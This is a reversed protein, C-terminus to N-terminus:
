KIYKKEFAILKQKSAFPGHFKYKQLTILKPCFGKAWGKNLKIIYYGACFCSKSKKTKTYIPVKRKVDFVGNYYKQDTPYDHLMNIIKQPAIRESWDATAFLSKGFYKFLQEKTYHKLTDTKFKVEYENSDVKIIYGIKDTDKDNTIIWSNNSEITKINSM